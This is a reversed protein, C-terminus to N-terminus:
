TSEVICVMIVVCTGTQQPQQSIDPPLHGSGSAVNGHPSNGAVRSPLSTPPGPFFFYMANYGITFILGILIALSMLHM